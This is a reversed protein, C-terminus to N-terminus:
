FVSSKIKNNVNIANQQKAEHYRIHSKDDTKIAFWFKM